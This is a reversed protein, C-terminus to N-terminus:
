TGLPNILIVRKVWLQSTIEEVVKDPIEQDVETICVAMKGRGSRTVRMTAINISMRALCSTISAVVGPKDVYSVVLAWHEGTLSVTLGDIEVVEVKGGGVSVGTMSLHRGSEGTLEFKVTNPHVDGLDSPEIKVALGFERAYSYAERLRPDDQGFGLLGGILALDTGHGRYTAAFSGHLMLLASVPKEGLLARALNGLRAAGATHSSSPGIMIPGLVDFLRTM